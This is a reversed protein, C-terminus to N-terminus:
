ARAAAKGEWVEDFAGQWVLDFALQQIVYQDHVSYISNFCFVVAVACAVNFWACTSFSAITEQSNASLDIQRCMYM